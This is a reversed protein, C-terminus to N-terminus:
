SASDTFRSLDGLSTGDILRLVTEAEWSGPRGAVLTESGGARAAATCLAGALWGAFDHETEAASTLAAAAAFDHGRLDRPRRPLARAMAAAEACDEALRILIRATPERDDEALPLRQPLEIVDTILQALHDGFDQAPTPVKAPERRGRGPSGPTAPNM